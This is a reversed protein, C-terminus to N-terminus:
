RLSTAYVDRLRECRFSTPSLQTCVRGHTIIMSGDPLAFLVEPVIPLSQQEIISGDNTRISVFGTGYAALYGTSFFALAGDSSLDSVPSYFRPASLSRVLTLAGDVLTPGWLFRTGHLDGSLVGGAAPWQACAGFTDSSVDYVQECDPYSNVAIRRRDGSAALGAALQPRDARLRQQGSTLDFELVGGGPAGNPRLGVLVKGNAAAVVDGAVRNPMASSLLPITAVATRTTLDVIALSAASPLVVFLSDGGASLDMRGPQAPLRVQALRNLPALSFVEVAAATDIRTALLAGRKPDYLFQGLPADLDLRQTPHNVVPYVLARANLRRENGAVDRAFLVLSSTGTWSSRLPLRLVAHGSAGSASDAAVIAGSARYGVWQVSANDSADLTLSLTDEISFRLSDLSPYYNPAVQVSLAPPTTDGVTVGAATKTAVRHLTDEAEMRVVISGGIPTAAAVAFSITDTVDMSGRGGISDAGTTAGTRFFRLRRLPEGSTAHYHVVIRGGPEVFAPLAELSVIEPAATKTSTETPSGDGGGCAVFALLAIVQALLRPAGAARRIM